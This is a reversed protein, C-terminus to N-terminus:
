SVSYHRLAGRPSEEFFIKLHHNTQHTKAGRVVKITHVLSTLRQQSVDFSWQIMSKIIKQFTPFFNEM